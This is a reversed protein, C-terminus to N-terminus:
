ESIRVGVLLQLEQVLKGRVAASIIHGRNRGDGFDFVGLLQIKVKAKRRTPHNSILPLFLKGSM